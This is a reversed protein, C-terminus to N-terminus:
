HYCNASHRHNEDLYHYIVDYHLKSLEFQLSLWEANKHNTMEFLSKVFPDDSNSNYKSKTTLARVQNYNYHHILYDIYALMRQLYVSMKRNIGIFQKFQNNMSEVPNNTNNNRINLGIRQYKVWKPECNAWNDLFYKLGEISAVLKFDNLHKKYEDSTISYMMKELLTLEQGDKPYNKKFSKMAHWMCYLIRAKTTNPCCKM